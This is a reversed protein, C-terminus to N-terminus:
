RQREQEVEVEVRLDFDAEFMLDAGAILYDEDGTAAFREFEAWARDELTPELLLRSQDEWDRGVAVLAVILAGALIGVAIMVDM